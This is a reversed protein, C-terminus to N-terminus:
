KKNKNIKATHDLIALKAEIAKVLLEKVDDGVNPNKEIGGNLMLFMEKQKAKDELLNAELRIKKVADDLSNDKMLKGWRSKNMDDMIISQSLMLQSNSNTYNLNNQTNFNFDNDTEDNHSFNNINPLNINDYNNNKKNKQNSYSSPIFNNQNLNRSNNKNRTKNISNLKQEKIERLYDPYKVLPVKKKHPSSYGFTGASNTINTNQKQKLRMIKKKGEVKTSNNILKTNKSPLIQMEKEKDKELTEEKITNNLSVPINVNNGHNMSSQIKSSSHNNINLSNNTNSNKNMSRYNPNNLNHSLFPQNTNSESGSGSSYVDKLLNNQAQNLQVTNINKASIASVQAQMITKLQNVNLSMKAVPGEETDLRELPQKNTQQTEERNAINKLQPISMLKNKNQNLKLQNTKNLNNVNATTKLRKNMSSTEEDEIFIENKNKLHIHNFNVSKRKENIDKKLTEVKLSEGRRSDSSLSEKVSLSKKNKHNINNRTKFNLVNISTAYRSQKVNDIVEKELLINHTNMKEKTAKSNNDKDLTSKNVWSEEIRQINNEDLLIKDKNPNHSDNTILRINNHNFDVETTNNKEKEEKSIGYKQKLYRSISEKANEKKNEIRKLVENRKTKDVKPPLLQNVVKSYNRMKMSNVIANMKSRSVKEREKREEEVIRQYALSDGKPIRQSILKLTNEKGERERRKLETKEKIQKTIEESFNDLEQKNIPKLMSKKQIHYNILKEEFEEEEIQKRRKEEEEMRAFLYNSKSLYHPTSSHLVSRLEHVEQKRKEAKQKILELNQYYKNEREKM